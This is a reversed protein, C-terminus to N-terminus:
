KKILELSCAIKVKQGIALGGSELVSNYKLGFEYRDIEGSVVVGARTGGWPDKIIGGFKADLTVSKTAGHMTLDGTIKYQNDKVKKFSRGKFTINNYKEVDFFDSSKLHKDRDANKTNISGVEITVDFTADTFDPKDSVINVSYKEFEGKTETIVLHDIAFGISSHSPDLIWVTSPALTFSYQVFAGLLILCLIIRKM